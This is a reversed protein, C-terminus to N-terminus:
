SGFHKESNEHNNLFDLQLPVDGIDYDDCEEQRPESFKNQIANFSDDDNALDSYFGGFKM